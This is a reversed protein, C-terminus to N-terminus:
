AASSTGGDRSDEIRDPVHRQVAAILEDVGVYEADSFVFTKSPGSLSIVRPHRGAPALWISVHTVEAWSMWQPKRRWAEVCIGSDYLAVTRPASLFVPVSILFVLGLIFLMMVGGPGPRRVLNWAILAGFILLIAAGGLLFGRRSRRLTGEVPGLAEKDGDLM